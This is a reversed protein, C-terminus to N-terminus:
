GDAVELAAAGENEKSGSNRKRLYSAPPVAEGGYRWGKAWGQDPWVVNGADDTWGRGTSSLTWVRWDDDRYVWHQRRKGDHPLPPYLTETM